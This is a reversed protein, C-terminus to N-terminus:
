YSHGVGGKGLLRRLGVGIIRGQRLLFDILSERTCARPLRVSKILSCAFYEIHIVMITELKRLTILRKVMRSTCYDRTCLGVKDFM